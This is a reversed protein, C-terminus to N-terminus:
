NGVTLTYPEPQVYPGETVVGSSLYGREITIRATQGAHSSMVREWIAAAPTFSTVSLMATYAPEDSEGFYIRFLYNEGTVAACHAYATGEVLSRALEGLAAAASPRQPRVRCGLAGPAKVPALCSAHTPRFSFTPPTHRDLPGTLPSLLEPSKCPDKVVKNAAEAEIFLTFSEDSTTPSGAMAGECNVIFEDAEPAAKPCACLLLLAILSCRRLM